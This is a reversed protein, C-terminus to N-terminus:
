KTKGLGKLVDSASLDGSSAAPAPASAAPAPAPAEAVAPVGSAAEAFRGVYEIKAQARAEKLDKAVLERRRDNLLFQEIAPTARALDVPQSRSGALVVIQLGNPTPLVTSRGDKMKALMDLSNMPLQEAPRVMQNGTFKIDNAKLYDIFETLSKSADFKAKLEPLQEPRSEVQLEQISYIRRDSFLAPKQDYYAKIEEPTPKQAAEGVKAMYARAVIERKAEEIQQVVRPDRDLKLDEAKQVAVEQDILRELIQKSAANTNETTVGRQQQLLFNIQHVTIEEKNVRAATQSATKDKKGCGTLAASSVVLVAALAVTSGLRVPASDRLKM